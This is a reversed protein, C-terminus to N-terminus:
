NMTLYSIADDDGKDADEAEEERRHERSAICNRSCIREDEDDYGNEDAFWTGCEPCEVVWDEYAWHNIITEAHAEIFFWVYHDVDPFSVGEDHAFPLIVDHFKEFIALCDRTYTLGAIGSECGMGEVAIGVMDVDRNRLEEALKRIDRDDCYVSQVSM